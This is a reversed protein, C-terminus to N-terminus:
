EYDLEGRVYDIHTRATERKRTKRIDKINTDKRHCVNNSIVEIYKALDIQAQTSNMIESSAIRNQETTIEEVETLDMGKFRSEILTFAIYDGSVMAWVTSVDDPNYAVKIDGGSLYEETYGERYYRMKNVILGKRTYRGTTKPLMSYLISSYSISLINAGPQTKGYEFIVNAYPAINKDIMDKTYPYNKLVRKSNYYLICHLIVKEFDQLTLCADKRYDRCGREQFDPNIVGKGQLYKKYYGQVLDFFKEVSGKLEPRYPPLNTVTIGLESLQAFLESKYESGMDTVLVGPVQNNNWEKSKIIIGHKKCWEVKDSIINLMLNKLSYTGGEWTLSYGCCLSSYADICATLIPRGILNGSDDVLYIDCITSDLMGIGINPAFQQVGDGLLPRNNRQYSKIGDRSIYYTQLKKTKRYFYRFQYFSPHPVIMMGNADCYKEKLLMTYATNLSNKNRTYYFKNLAWRMNKEDQSLDTKKLKKKPAFVSMDQYALYLCLYKRITTKSVKREESIQNIIENRKKQDTVFPLISAIFTFHERVFKIEKKNLDEMNLIKVGTKESLTEMACSTFSRIQESPIWKPMTLNICDIIFVQEHQVDLIRIISNENELLCNNQM